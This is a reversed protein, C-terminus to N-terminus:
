TNRDKSIQDSQTRDNMIELLGLIASLNHQVYDIQITFNTLSGHFGGLARQPDELYLVSEPGFQTQLQFRIGRNLAELFVKADEKKGTDRALEYAASLGESRTATPTSRPPRNYSGYWDPYIPNINQSQVISQAIRMAQNLYIPNPRYRYLENLAYLLWHDPYLENLSKGKDRVNILYQAGKEATDLLSEDKYLEYIRTLGFLAEGPYYSSMTKYPKGDSYRQIHPYFEGTELQQKQIWRGLKILYERLEQDNTIEIYKAVALAALGNGGLKVMNNEVVCNLKEGGVECTKTARQLYGIARKIAGMLEPDNTLEYVELMAYVTGAHRLINYDKPVANSKPFYSYVFSGDPRVARKLYDGGQTASYILMEETIEDFMRHGRYLRYPTEGDFFYSETTFRNIKIPDNQELLNILSKGKQEDVYGDIKDARLYRNKNVISNSVLEEPLFAMGIERDFAIGELSRDINFMKGVYIEQPHYVERVLDLKVWRLNYDSPISSKINYIAQDLADELGMGRGLFVRAPSKGDSVSIFAIRPKNDDKLATPMYDLKEKNNLVSEGV